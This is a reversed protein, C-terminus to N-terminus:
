KTLNFGISYNTGTILKIFGHYFHCFVERFQSPAAIKCVRLAFLIYDLKNETLDVDIASNKKFWKTYYFDEDEDLNYHPTTKLFDGMLTEFKFPYQTVFRYNHNMKLQYLINDRGVEEDVNKLDNIISEVIKDFEIVNPHNTGFIEKLNEKHNQLSEISNQTSKSLKPPNPIEFFSNVSRQTNHNLRNDNIFDENLYDEFNVNKLCNFGEDSFLLFSNSDDMHEGYKVVKKESKESNSHNVSESNIETQTEINFYNPGEKLSNVSNISHGMQEENKIVRESNKGSILNKLKLETKTEIEIQNDSAETSSFNFNGMMIKEMNDFETKVEKPPSDQNLYNEKLREKRVENQYRYMYVDNTNVYTEKLEQSKLTILDHNRKDLCTPFRFKGSRFPLKNQM